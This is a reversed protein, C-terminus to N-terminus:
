IRAGTVRGPRDIAEAFAAAIEAYGRENPHFHDDARTGILSRWRRGRLDAVRIGDRAAAADILANIALAHENRRPLTAVVSKAPPLQGLLRSFAGAANERRRRSLMDNAGILVTVLAPEVSLDRMRPLQAGLVDGIRAGTASLNVLRLPRGSAALGRHLQGVWGGSIDSAGIGQSMSDGLAVWVPGEERLARENAEQWAQAFPVTQARIRGIGPVLTAALSSLTTSIRGTSL